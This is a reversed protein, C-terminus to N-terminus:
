TPAGHLMRGPERAEGEYGVAGTESMSAPAEANAALVVAVALLALLRLINSQHDGSPRGRYKSRLERGAV